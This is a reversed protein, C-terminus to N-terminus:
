DIALAKDIVLSLNDRHARTLANGRRSWSGMWRRVKRIMALSNSRSVYDLKNNNYQTILMNVYIIQLNQRMGNVDGRMDAAFVADTLDSLMSNLNYTNGYLGSNNIRMMTNTHLLHALVGGQIRAVRAHIDPDEAQNFHNFGRRQIALHSILEGPADFADPAFFHETLVAMAERQRVEAVPTYPTGSGTQGAVSRDIMVGGVYRSTVAAQRAMDTTVVVYANRLKQYSEGEVTIKDKLSAMIGKDEVLRDRAYKIADDSFDYINVLPDMGKGPGRMDDADNGFGHGKENSQALLAARKAPDEMEPSYGFQIAWIDYSGPRMTYYYAQEEGKPAFNIAPYDMVSSVLGESQKSKDHAESYARSQTAKMNHNLGLTHGVEHLMLYYISQEVLDKTAEPGMNHAAAFTKGLMNNLQLHSALGCFKEHAAIRDLHMKTESDANELFATDFVEGANIRNTLFSYELMIDAGLIQGTRPNTFSPGYGGFPVTPSSTWRLVNYRVDGADWNADDPQTKVVVANKFGAAEFAINWKEVAMKITPRMELPTTNEIWYTIPEVPESVTAEPDKKVLNWRNILDRWPTTSRDTLDTVTNMFYGIRADDIRPKFDNDPVEILNHIYKVTVSRADTIENGKGFNAPSPNDYVYETKILTNEPYNRVEAIKSKGRSLKGLSFNQGPKARPNRPPKVIQMAESMFLGDAKFLMNGSEKDTAEIKLTALIAPSINADKAKTIAQDPDFYFSTNQQVVEVRNYYKVLKFIKEGRYQGRFHGGELIGDAVQSFYIYEKDLQDPAIEMRLAGSKPDRYFTFLGESKKHDKTIEAITKEKKKKKKDGSKAKAKKDGTKDAKKEDTKETKAAEPKKGDDQSFAPAAVIVFASLAVSALLNSITYTRDAM